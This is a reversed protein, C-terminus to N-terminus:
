KKYIAIDNILNETKEYHHGLSDKLKENNHEGPEPAPEVIKNCFGYLFIQCDYSLHM